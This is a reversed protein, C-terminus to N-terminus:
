LWENSREKVQPITHRITVINSWPGDRTVVVIRMSQSHRRRRSITLAAVIPSPRLAAMPLLRFCFSLMMEWVCVCEREWKCATTGHHLALIACQYPTQWTRTEGNGGICYPYQIWECIKIRVFFRRLLEREANDTLGNIISVANITSFYLSRVAEASPIM